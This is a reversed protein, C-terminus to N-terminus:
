KGMDEIAKCADDANPHTYIQTSSLQKHGLLEQVVRINTVRALRTAFTHRLMHPHIWRNIFAIGAKGILRQIYRSTIPIEASETYFAYGNLGAPMTNWVNQQLEAIANQARLSLPIIRETKTKSIESRVRLSTAPKLLFWLDSVLLQRLENVRLGADLM